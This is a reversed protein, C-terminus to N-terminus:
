FIVPIGLQGLFQQSNLISMGYNPSQGLGQLIPLPNNQYGSQQGLGSLINPQQNGFQQGFNQMQGFNPQYLSSMGGGYSGGGQGQGGGGGGQGSQANLLTQRITALSIADQAIRQPIQGTLGARQFDLNTGTTFADSLINGHQGLGQQLQGVFGLDRANRNGMNSARIAQNGINQQVGYGTITKALDLGINRQKDFENIGYENSLRQQNSLLNSIIPASGRGMRGMISGLDYNPTSMAEQFARPARYNFNELRSLDFNLLPADTELGAYGAAGLGTSFQNLGMLDGTLGTLNGQANALSNQQARVNAITGATNLPFAGNLLASTMPDLGQGGGQQGGGGFISQLFPLATGAITGIDGLTQLFQGGQPAKRIGRSIKDPGKKYENLAIVTQLYPLRSKLNEENTVEVFPDMVDFDKIKWKKRVAEGLESPTFYKKGKPLIDTFKLEEPPKGKKTESYPTIKWGMTLKDLRDRSIKMGKAASLIYSGDPIMDSIFDDDQNKHRGTANTDTISGDLHIIREPIKGVKETQIPVLNESTVLGGKEFTPQLGGFLNGFGGMGGFLNGYPSGAQGNIGPTFPTGFMSGFPLQGLASGMGGGQAGQGFGGGRMGGGFLNGINGFLSNFGTAGSGGGFGGGFNGFMNQQQPQQFQQSQGLSNLGSGLFQAGTGLGPAVANLAYPAIKGLTNSVGSLFKSRDVFSDQILDNAGIMGLSFDAIGKVGQGIGKFLKGFFTNTKGGKPFRSQPHVLAQNFAPTDFPQMKPIIFTPTQLLSSFNFGGGAGGPMNSPVNNLSDLRYGAPVMQSIGGNPFNQPNFQPMLPTGPFSFPSMMMNNQMLSEVLALPPTGQSISGGQAKGKNWKKKGM